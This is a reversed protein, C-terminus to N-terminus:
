PHINVGLTGESDSAATSLLVGATPTSPTGVYIRERISASSYGCELSVQRILMHSLTHLLVYRAVPFDLDAPRGRNNLWRQYAQRLAIIRAHDSVRDAWAAVADETLQLFIGEGRREVAPVWSLDGATLPVTNTPQLDRREPANVRTFGLLAQAERLRKVLVVQDLLSSYASPVPEPVALFDDDNRQTTPRAFADWEADLIDAPPAPETRHGAGRLREIVAWVEDAPHDRLLRLAPMGGLLTRVVDVSPQAGLVEWHEKVQEDIGQDQPLHLASATIGFWMNSAGLVMLRLSDGCPEFHQLHPHRGRCRPLEGAGRPGAAESVNRSAKCQTCRVTVRPGLNSGSDRMELIPGPCAASAGQHIFEVYPFEDLHGRDCVVLFRAAVCSRRRSVANTQLQCGSHVWKALDPRRGYRHIFEFQGTGDIPGLRSCAPCRAWRPFPSVPVGRSTLPDKTDNPDWPAARLERVSTGLLRQIAALLRPEHITAGTSTWSGLGRVVVSLGPLDIVAGVGATTM